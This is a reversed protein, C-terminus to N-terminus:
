KLHVGVEIELSKGAPFHDASPRLLYVLEGGSPFFTLKEHFFDFFAAYWKEMGSVM